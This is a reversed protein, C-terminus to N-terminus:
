IAEGKHIKKAWSLTDMTFDKDLMWKVFGLEKFAPVGKHKGFNLCIVGADNRKFKGSFDVRGENREVFNHLDTTSMGKLDDEVKLMEDLIDVTADTDIMADHAGDLEKGTYQLYCASLNRPNLKKYIYM